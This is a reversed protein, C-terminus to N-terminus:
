EAPTSFPLSKCRWRIHQRGYSGVTAAPDMPVAEQLLVSPTPPIQPSGQPPENKHHRALSERALKLIQKKRPSRIITNGRGKTRTCANCRHQGHCRQTCDSPLREWLDGVHCCHVKKHRNAENKHKSGQHFVAGQM